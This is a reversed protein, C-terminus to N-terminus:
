EIRLGQAEDPQSAIGVWAGGKLPIVGVVQPNYGGPPSWCTKLYINLPANLQRDLRLGLRKYEFIRGVKQSVWRYKTCSRSILHPSVYNIRYVFYVFRV